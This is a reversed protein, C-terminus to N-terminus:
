NEMDLSWFDTTFEELYFPVTQTMCVPFELITKLSAFTTKHKPQSTMGSGPQLHTQRGVLSLRM